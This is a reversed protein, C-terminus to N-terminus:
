KSFPGVIRGAAVPLLPDYVQGAYAYPAPRYGGHLMVVRSTLPVNELDLADLVAGRYIRTFEQFGMPNARAYPTLPLLVPGTFALAEELSTVGDGYPATDPPPVVAVKGNRFGHIHQEHVRGPVLGYASVKVRFNGAPLLTIEASGTVGSGNLEVLAARYTRTVPVAFASAVLTMFVALALAAVVVLRKVNM